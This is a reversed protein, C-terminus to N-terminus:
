VDVVGAVFEAAATVPGAARARVLVADRRQDEAVPHAAGDLRARHEAVRDVGAVGERGLAARLGARGAPEGGRGAGRRADHLPCAARPLGAGAFAAEGADVPCRAGGTAAQALRDFAAPRRVALGALARAHMEGPIRGADALARRAEE